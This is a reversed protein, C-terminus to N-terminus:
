KKYLRNLLFVIMNMMFHKKQKSMVTEGINQGYHFTKKQQPM